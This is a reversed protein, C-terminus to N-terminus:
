GGSSWTRLAGSRQRAASTEGPTPRASFIPETVSCSRTVPRRPLIPTNTYASSTTDSVFNDANGNSLWAHTVYAPGAGRMRIQTATTGSFIGAGSYGAALSSGFRYIGKGFVLEVGNAANLANIVPTSNNTGSGSAGNSDAKAGWWEVLLPSAVGSADIAGTSTGFVQHHGAIVETPLKISGGARLDLAGGGEFRLPVSVTGVAGAIKTKLPILLGVNAASAAAMAAILNTTDDTVDDCACYERANIYGAVRDVLGNWDSAQFGRTPDGVYPTADTKKNALITM